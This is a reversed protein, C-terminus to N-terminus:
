PAVVTRLGNCNLETGEAFHARRIMALASIQQPKDSSIASSTITGAEHEDKRVVTGRELKPVLTQSCCDITLLVLKKQVQGLADLRAVTEQGLYCGKNFSIATGNRDLEQPLNKEDFDIGFLPWRHRIRNVELDFNDEAPQADSRLPFFQAITDDPRFRVLLWDDGIASCAIALFSESESTATIAMNELREFRDNHFHSKLWARRVFAWRWRSTEDAITVDERIIYRDWHPLLRSAQNEGWSFYVLMERDSFVIGHSLTRGKVDTVFCEVAQNEATKKLDNTVLNNLWKLRDKGSIALATVFNLPFHKQM